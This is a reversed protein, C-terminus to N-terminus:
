GFLAAVEDATLGLKTLARQRAAAKALDAKAFNAALQEDVQYQAYEADTMERADDGIQITPRTTAM